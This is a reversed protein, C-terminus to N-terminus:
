RAPPKALASESPRNWRHPANRPRCSSIAQTASELPPVTSTCSRTRMDGSLVYLASSSMRVEDGYSLLSADLLAERTAARHRGAPSIEWDHMDARQRGDPMSVGWPQLRPIRLDVRFFKLFSTAVSNQVPRIVPCTPEVPSM